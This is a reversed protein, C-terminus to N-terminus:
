TSLRTTGSSSGTLQRQLLRHPSHAGSDGVSLREFRSRRQLDRSSLQDDRLVAVDPSCDASELMATNVVADDYAGSGTMGIISAVGFAGPGVRSLIVYGTGM